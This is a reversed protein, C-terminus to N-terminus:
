CCMLDHQFVFVLFPVLELLISAYSMRERLSMNDTIAKKHLSQFTLLRGAGVQHSPCENYQVVTLM